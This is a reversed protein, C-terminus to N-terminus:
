CFSSQLVQNHNFGDRFGCILFHGSAAFASAGALRSAFRAARYAVLGAFSNRTFFFDFAFLKRMTRKQRVNYLWFLFVAYQILVGNKVSKRLINIGHYVYKIVPVFVINVVHAAARQVLAIRGGGVIQLRLFFSLGNIDGIQRVFL